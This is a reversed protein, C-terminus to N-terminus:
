WIAIPDGTISIVVVACIEVSHFLREIPRTVRVDVPLDHFVLEAHSNCDASNRNPKGMAMEELSSSATGCLLLSMLPPLTLVKSELGDASSPDQQASVEM